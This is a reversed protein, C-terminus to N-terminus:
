FFSAVEWMCGRNGLCVDVSSCSEMQLCAQQRWISGPSLFAAFCVSVGPSRLPVRVRPLSRHPHPHQTGTKLLGTRAPLSWEINAVASHWSDTGILGWNWDNKYPSLLGFVGAPMGLHTVPVGPPHLQGSEKELCIALDTTNWPHQRHEKIVM